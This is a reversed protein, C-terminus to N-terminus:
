LLVPDAIKLSDQDTGSCMLLRICRPLQCLFLSSVLLYPLQLFVRREAYVHGNVADSVEAVWRFLELHFGVGVLQKHRPNHYKVLVAVHNHHLSTLADHRRKTYFWRRM